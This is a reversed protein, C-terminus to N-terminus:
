TFHSLFAWQNSIEGELGWKILFIFLFSKENWRVSIQSTTAQCIAHWTHPVTAVEGGIEMEGVEGALKKFTCFYTQEILLVLDFVGFNSIKALKELM